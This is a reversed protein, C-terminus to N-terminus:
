SIFYVTLNVDPVNIKKFELGLFYKVANADCEHNSTTCIVISHNKNHNHKIWPSYTYDFEILNSPHSKSYFIFNQTPIKEGVVYLLLRNGTEQQWIKEIEQTVDHVPYTNYKTKLDFVKVCTGYCIFGINILIVSIIIVKPRLIDRQNLLFTTFLFWHPIGWVSSSELNFVLSLMFMVLTPGFTIYTLLLSSNTEKTKKSTLLILGVVLLLYVGQALLFLLAKEGWLGHAINESFYKLVIFDNQFLWVLHPAIGILFVVIACYAKPNTFIGREKHLAYIVFTLLLCISSYKSLVSLASALGFLLWSQLKNTKIASVFFFVSIPYLSLLISNANFKIGLANYFPIFELLLVALIAKKEDIFQRAILFIFVMGIAINIESLFFYALNNIGFIRLWGYSVWAFFPPHKYYGFQLEKGWAYNEVMDAKSDLITHSLDSGFSWCLIHLLIFGFLVLYIMYRGKMTNALWNPMNNQQPASM